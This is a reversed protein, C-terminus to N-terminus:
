ACRDKSPSFYLHYIDPKSTLLSVFGKGEKEFYRSIWKKPEAICIGKFLLLLLLLIFLVLFIQKRPHECLGIYLHCLLSKGSLLGVEWYSPGGDWGKVWLTSNQVKSYDTSKVSTICFSLPLLRDRRKDVSESLIYKKKEWCRKAINKSYNILSYVYTKQSSFKSIALNSHM